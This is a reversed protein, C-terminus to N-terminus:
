GAILADESSPLAVGSFTSSFFDSGTASFLGDVALDSAAGEEGVFAVLLWALLMTVSVVFVAVCEAGAGVGVGAGVGAFDGREEKRAEGRASM